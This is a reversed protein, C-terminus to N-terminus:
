MTGKQSCILDGRQAFELHVIIFFGYHVDLSSIRGAYCFKVSKLFCSKEM